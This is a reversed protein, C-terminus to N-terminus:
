SLLKSVGIKIQHNVEHHNIDAGVGHAQHRGREDLKRVSRAHHRPSPRHEAGSKGQWGLLPLLRCGDDDEGPDSTPRRSGYRALGSASAQLRPFHRGLSKHPIGEDRLLGPIKEVLTRPIGFGIQMRWEDVRQTTTRERASVFFWRCNKKSFFQLRKERVIPGRAIYEAGGKRRGRGVLGMYVTIVAVLSMLYPLVFYGFKGSNGEKFIFRVGYNYRYRSSATGENNSALAPSGYALHPNSTWDIMGKVQVKSVVANEVDFTEKGVDEELYVPDFYNVVLTIALGTSRLLPKSNLKNEYGNTGGAKSNIAGTDELNVGAASGWQQLTLKPDEGPGFRCQGPTPKGCDFEVYEAGRKTEIVSVVPRASVGQRKQLEVEEMKWSSQGM